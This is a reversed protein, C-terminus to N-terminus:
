CWVASLRVRITLFLRCGGVRSRELNELPSVMGVAPAWWNHLWGWGTDPTQEPVGCSCNRDQVLWSGEAKARPTYM